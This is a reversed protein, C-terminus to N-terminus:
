LYHSRSGPPMPEDGAIHAVVDDDEVPLAIL